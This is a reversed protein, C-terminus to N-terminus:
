GQLRCCVSRGGVSHDPNITLANDSRTGHNNAPSAFRCRLAAMATYAIGSGASPLGILQAAERHQPPTALGRDPDEGCDFYLFIEGNLLQERLRGNFSMCYGNECPTGSTICLMKVGIRVLRPLVANVICEPGNESWIHGPSGPTVCLVALAALVDESRLRRAVPVPVVAGLHQRLETSPISLRRVSEVLFRHSSRM